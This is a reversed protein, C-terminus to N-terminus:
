DLNILNFIFLYIFDQLILHMTLLSLLVLVVGILSANNAMLLHYNLV